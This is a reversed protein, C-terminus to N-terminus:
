QGCPHDGVLQAITNAPVAISVAQYPQITYSELGSENSRSILAVECKNCTNALKVYGPKDASMVVCQAAQARQAFRDKPIKKQLEKLLSSNSPACYCLPTESGTAHSCIAAQGTGCSVTCTADGNDNTASCTSDAHVKTCVLLVPIIFILARWGKRRM